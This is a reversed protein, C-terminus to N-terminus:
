NKDFITLLIALFLFSHTKSINNAALFEKIAKTADSLHRHVTNASIGMTDGAEKHSKGELKILTFATRQQKPLNSIATELLKGTENSFVTEETNNTIESNIAHLENETRHVYELRRYYGIAKNKAMGHLYAVLSTQLNIKKRKDWLEVFIQQLMEEAEDKDKVMRLLKWYLKAGYAYYIKEFAGHDGLQLAQLM